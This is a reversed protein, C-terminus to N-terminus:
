PLPEPPKRCDKRFDQPSRGVARKFVRNFHSLNGFGVEFAINAVKDDTRLLLERARDIRVQTLYEIFPRGVARRFLESFRRVSLALARAYTEPGLPHFYRREIDALVPGIRPDALPPMSGLDASVAAAADLPPSAALRCVGICLEVVLAALMDLRGVAAGRSESAIRRVLLELSPGMAATGAIHLPEGQAFLGALVPYWARGTLVADDIMVIVQHLPDGREDVARHATRGSWLLLSGAAVPVSGEDTEYRGRGAVVYGIEHFGHTHLPMSFDVPHVHQSVRIEGPSLDLEHAVTEM